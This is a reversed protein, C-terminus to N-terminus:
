QSGKSRGTSYSWSPLCKLYYPVLHLLLENILVLVVLGQHGLAVGAGGEREVEGDAVDQLVERVDSHLM